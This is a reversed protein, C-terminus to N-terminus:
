NYYIESFQKPIINPNLIEVTAVDSFVNEDYEFAPGSITYTGNFTGNSNCATIIDGWCDEDPIPAMQGAGVRIKVWVNSYNYDDYSDYNPLTTFIKVRGSVEGEHNEDEGYSINEVIAYFHEINNINIPTGDYPVEDLSILKTSKILEDSVFYGFQIYIYDDGEPEFNEIVTVNGTNNITGYDSVDSTIEISDWQDGGSWNYEDQYVTLPVFKLEGEELDFKEDFTITYPM